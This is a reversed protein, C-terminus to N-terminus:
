GRLCRNIEELLKDKNSSIPISVEKRGYTLGFIDEVKFGRREWMTRFSHQNMTAPKTVQLIVKGKKLDLVRCDVKSAENKSVVKRLFKQIISEAKNTEELAKVRTKLKVEEEKTRALNYWIKTGRQKIPYVKNEPINFKRLSQRLLEESAEYKPTNSIVQLAVDGLKEKPVV